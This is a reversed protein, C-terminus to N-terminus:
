LGSRLEVLREVEVDRKGKEITYQDFYLMFERVDTLNQDRESLVFDEGYHSMVKALRTNENSVATVLSKKAVCADLKEFVHFSETIQFINTVCDFYNKVLTKRREQACRVRPIWKLFLRSWWKKSAKHIIPDPSVSTIYASKYKDIKRINLNSQVLIDRETILRRELSQLLRNKRLSMNAYYGAVVSEADQVVKEQDSIIKEPNNM